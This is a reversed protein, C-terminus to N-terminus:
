RGYRKSEKRQEKWMKSDKESEQGGKQKSEVSIIETDSLSKNNGKRKRNRERKVLM